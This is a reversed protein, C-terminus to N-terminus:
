RIMGTGVSRTAHLELKVLIDPTSTKLKELRGAVVHQGYPLLIQVAYAILFQEFNAHSFLSSEDSKITIKALDCSKRGARTGSNYHQVDPRSRRKLRDNAPQSIEQRDKLILRDMAGQPDDFRPAHADM